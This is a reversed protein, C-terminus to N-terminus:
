QWHLVEGQQQTKQSTEMIQHLRRIPAQCINGNRILTLPLRYRYRRPFGYRMRGLRHVEAGGSLLTRVNCDDTTNKGHGQACSCCVDSAHKM